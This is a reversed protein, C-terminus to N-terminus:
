ATEVKVVAKSIKKTEKMLQALQLKLDDVQNCCVPHVATQKLPRLDFVQEQVMSITVEKANLRKEIQEKQFVEFSKGSPMWNPNGDDLKTSIM